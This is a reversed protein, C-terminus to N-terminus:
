LPFFISGFIRYKRSKLSQFFTAPNEKFRKFNAASALKKVIPTIFWLVYKMQHPNSSSYAQRKEKEKKLNVEEASVLRSWLMKKWTDQNAYLAPALSKGILASALDDNVPLFLDAHRLVALYGLAAIEQLSSFRPKREPLPPAQWLVTYPTAKNMVTCYSIGPHFDHIALVTKFVDGHWADSVCGALRRCEWAFKQDPIASFFDSPVTDHLIWITNRHCFKLSNEFDRLSQEFTHLGDIYIIDFAPPGAPELFLSAQPHRSFTAFFDDSSIPLYLAGNEAYEEPDFLFVPDVAVKLPMDVFFFTRGEQVGIELYKAAQFQQAYANIKGAIRSASIQKSNEERM